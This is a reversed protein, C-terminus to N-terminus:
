GIDMETSWIRHVTHLSSDVKKDNQWIKDLIRLISCMTERSEFCAQSLVHRKTAEQFSVLTMTRWPKADEALGIGGKASIRPVQRAKCAPNPANPWHCKSWSCEGEMTTICSINYIYISQYVTHLFYICWISNYRSKLCGCACGSFIQFTMRPANGYPVQAQSAQTSASRSSSVMSFSLTSSPQHVSLTERTNLVFCTKNKFINSDYQLTEFVNSFSLLSLVSIFSYRSYAECESEYELGIGSALSYVASPKTQVRWHPQPQHAKATGVPGSDLLRAFDPHSRSLSVSKSNFYVINLYVTM